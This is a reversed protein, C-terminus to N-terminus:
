TGTKRAKKQRPHYFLYLIYKEKKVRFGASHVDTKKIDSDPVVHM